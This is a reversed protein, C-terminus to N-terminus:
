RLSDSTSSPKDSPRNTDSSHSAVEDNSAVAAVTEERSTEQEDSVSVDSKRQTKKKKKRKTGFRELPDEDVANATEEEYIKKLKASWAGLNKKEKAVVRHYKSVVHQKRVDAFGHGAFRKLYKV